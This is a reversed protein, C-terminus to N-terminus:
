ATVPDSIVFDGSLPYSVAGGADTVQLDYKAKGVFALAATATASVVIRFVGNTPDTLTIGSGTAVDILTPQGPNQRVQMRMTYGTLNRPTVGQVTWWTLTRDFTAGRRIRLTFSM